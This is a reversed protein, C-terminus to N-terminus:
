VPPLVLHIVSLVARANFNSSAVYFCVLVRILLAPIKRNTFVVSFSSRSDVGIKASHEKV